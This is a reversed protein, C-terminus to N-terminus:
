IMAADKSEKNNVLSICEGSELVLM